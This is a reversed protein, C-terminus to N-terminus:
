VDAPRRAKRCAVDAHNATRECPGHDTTHTLSLDMDNLCSSSRSISMSLCLKTASLPLGFAVRVLAYVQTRGIEMETYEGPYVFEPATLRSDVDNEELLAGLIAILRDLSFPM